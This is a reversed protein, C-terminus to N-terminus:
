QVVGLVKVAVARLSDRGLDPAQALEAGWDRPT